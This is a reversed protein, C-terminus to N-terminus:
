ALEPLVMSVLPLEAGGRYDFFPFPKIADGVLGKWPKPGKGM